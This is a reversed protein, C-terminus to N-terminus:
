GRQQHLQALLCLSLQPTCFSRTKGKMCPVCVNRLDLSQQAPLEQWAAPGQSINFWGSEYPTEIELPLHPFQHTLNQCWFM